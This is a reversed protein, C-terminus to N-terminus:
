KIPRTGNSPEQESLQWWQLGRKLAQNYQDHISGPRVSRKFDKENVPEEKIFASLLPVCRRLTRLDNANTIGVYKGISELIGSKGNFVTLTSPSQKRKKNSTLEYCNHPHRGGRFSFSSSPITITGFLFLKLKDHTTVVDQAWSLIKLRKDCDWGHAQALDMRMTHDDIVSDDNNSRSLAGHLILWKVVEFRKKEDLEVCYKVVFLLPSSHFLNRRRVDAAVGGEHFLLRCVNLNGSIAANLMPFDEGGKSMSTCEAGRSLLYRCMKLNGERCFYNMPTQTKYGGTAPNCKKNIQDADFGAEKLLKRANKEEEM